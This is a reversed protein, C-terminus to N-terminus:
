LNRCVKRWPLCKEFCTKYICACRHRELIPGKTTTARKRSERRLIYHTKMTKMFATVIKWRFCVHEFVFRTLMLIVAIFKIFTQNNRDFSCVCKRLDITAAYLHCKHIECVDIEKWIPSGWNGLDLMAWFITRGICIKYWFVVVKPEARPPGRSLDSSSGLGSPGWVLSGLYRWVLTPWFLTQGILVNNLNISM